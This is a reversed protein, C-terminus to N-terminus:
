GIVKWRYAATTPDKNGAEDIARVKFLHRGPKLNRFRTPSRCPRYPGLDRSCEYTSGPETSKFKFLAADRKMQRAPTKTLKTDPPTDPPPPPPPLNELAVTECGFATILDPPDTQDVSASDLGAGCDVSDPLGDRADIADDGDDGRLTDGGLGGVLTDAGPGGELLDAGYGGSIRDNGLGGIAHIPIATAVTASDDNADFVLDIRTVGSSSCRAKKETVPICPGWFIGGLSTNDEFVLIGTEPASVVLTSPCPVPQCNNTATYTLVSGQKTIVGHASASAALALMAALTLAATAFTRM